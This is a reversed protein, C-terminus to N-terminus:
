QCLCLCTVLCFQHMLCSEMVSNSRYDFLLHMKHRLLQHRKFTIKLRHQHSLQPIGINTKKEISIFQKKVQHDENRMEGTACLETPALRGPPDIAVFLWM